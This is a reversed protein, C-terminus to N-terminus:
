RWMEFHYNSQEKVWALTTLDTIKNGGLYLKKLVQLGALPKLDTIKNGGLDLEKL